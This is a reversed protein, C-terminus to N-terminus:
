AVKLVINPASAHRLLMLDYSLLMGYVRACTEHVQQTVAASAGPGAILSEIERLTRRNDVLQVFRRVTDNMALGMRLTVGSPSQAAFSWEPGTEGRISAPVKKIEAVNSFFPINELDDFRAYSGLETAAWFDHKKIAGWFLETAAQQMPRPLALVKELIAPDRFALRPDYMGRSEPVFEVLELGAADLLKYVDLISFPRDSAHLLLDYLETDSTQELSPFLNGSRKYWNTDPLLAALTRTSAIKQRPDSEDHNILRLLQQMQYIATRGYAGYLMLGMAGGDALMEKLALLGARPDHLHHLVGSVNIYNFKEIGSGPLDFLSGQMWTINDLRRVRAREEAVRISAYSLDLHMVVADTSRLQEALYLTSDGTGGGAVLARFGRSVDRRGRYCYHNIASLDDMPTLLFRTKEDEPARDPYPFEEYQQRLQSANALFDENAM